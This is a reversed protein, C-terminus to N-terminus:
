ARRLRLVSMGTGDPKHEAVQYSVGAVVLPLEVVGTPVLASAMTFVPGSSSIGTAMDIQEYGNDFIGEVAVGDLTASANSLSRLVASNVRAELEAFATM